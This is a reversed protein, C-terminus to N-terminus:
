GRVHRNLRAAILCRAPEWVCLSSANTLSRPRRLFTIMVTTIITITMIIGHIVLVHLRIPPTM